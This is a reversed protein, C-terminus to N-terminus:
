RKLKGSSGKSNTSCCRQCRTTFFPRSRAPRSCVVLEPMVKEVEEAILGFQTRGEPQTKYRFTVPRLEMIAQSAEGM